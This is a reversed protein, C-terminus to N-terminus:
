ELLRVEVYSAHERSRYVTQSATQFDKETAHYIDVFTQPNRDIVPFWTSQVQVMIRHGRLFCHYRDPLAFEIETIRGPVMPEPEVFSNRYKARMIEASLLMQYDSFTSRADSPFVDILKVVYDADTGTTSVALHATIPGAITVDESLTDSEYVLVDPRRAAFRQDAIMWQHGQQTQINTSWPVPKAPDSTYCDCARDSDDVPPTFSLGGNAHFYLRGPTTSKPPWQDLPRWKNEGTEFVLAEPLTYTGDGKLHAVLFPFEVEERFFEGTNSGFDFDFLRDGKGKFWGGHRWPGVVLTSRNQPTSEEITKYISMPGYFDEADFWGAVNLVAQTVNTLHPLINREQWYADYDGHEMYENWPPVAHKFYKENINPLPGIDLFFKYGDRTGYDFWPGSTTTPGAQPRGSRDVFSFAYMLRFAGNHHFDDGIWMDAPSARLVSAKLAPHAQILGMVAQWASYSGGWQGVRGNHNPVNRLLWEITDYVDSSEDTDQANKKNAAFPRMICFEGESKFKGRVDQYVFIFGEELYVDDPGLRNMYDTPGYHGVSYPTQLLLFPYTRSRDKPAYVQTYLKVGDRMPIMYEHKTYRDLITVYRAGFANDPNLAVAHKFNALAVDLDGRVMSAHAYSDYTNWSDPYAEVNLAFIAVADEVSGNSLYEHGLNNLADERFFVVGPHYRRVDRFLEQATAIGEARILELFEEQSPVSLPVSQVTALAVHAAQPATPSPLVDSAAPSLHVFLPLVLLILILRANPM